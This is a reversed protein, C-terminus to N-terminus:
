LVSEISAHSNVRVFFATGWGSVFSWRPGTVSEGDLIVVVTELTLKGRHMKIEPESAV